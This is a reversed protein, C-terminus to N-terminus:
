VSRAGASQEREQSQDRQAVQRGHDAVARDAAESSHQLPVQIAKATEVAATNRNFAPNDGIGSVEVARALSGDRNLEVRDPRTGERLVAVTLVGALNRSHEGPPIGREHEAEHVRALVQRYVAAHAGDPDSLLAARHQTTPQATPQEAGAPAPAPPQPAQEAQSEQRRQVAEAAEPLGREVARANLADRTREDARGDAPEINEDRQFRRIAAETNEDYRRTAGRAGLYELGQLQRQLDAVPDGRDGRALVQDNLPGYLDTITSLEFDPNAREVDARIRDFLAQDAQGNVPDIGADTQYKRLAQETSPGFDGDPSLANGADNTYGLEKLYQQMEFVRANADGNQLPADAARTPPLPTLDVGDREVATVLAPVQAEWATALAAIDAARNVGNVIARAGQYDAAVEPDTGIYDDLGRGTFLGDRMGRVLIRSAVEPDAALAPDAVLDGGRGLAEGLRQYNDRHTLHAYGRGFYDEGGEYGLRAAERRGFDEEPKTFNQSEHEATALIYAIQRPDTVGEEICTRVILAIAQDRSIPSSASRGYGDSM